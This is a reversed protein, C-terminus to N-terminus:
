RSTTPRRTRPNVFFMDTFPTPISANTKESEYMAKLSRYDFLTKISM